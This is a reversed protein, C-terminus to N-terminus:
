AACAAIRYRRGRREVVLGLAPSGPRQTGPGPEHIPELKTVQEVVESRDVAFHQVDPTTGAGDGLRDLALSRVEVHETAIGAAGRDCRGTRRTVSDIEAKRGGLPKGKAVALEIEDPDEVDQLVDVIRLLDQALHCSDQLRAASKVDHQGEFTLWERQVTEDSAARSPRGLDAM